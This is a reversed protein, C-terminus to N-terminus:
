RLRSRAKSSRAIRFSSAIIFTALQVGSPRLGNQPTSAFLTPFDPPQPVQIRIWWVAVCFGSYRFVTLKAATVTHTAPVHYLRCSGHKMRSPALMRESASRPWPCRRATAEVSVQLM